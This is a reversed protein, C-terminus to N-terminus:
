SEISLLIVRIDPMTGYDKEQLTVRDKPMATGHRSLNTCHLVTLSELLADRMKIEIM